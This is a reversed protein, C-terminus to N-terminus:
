AGEMTLTDEADAVTDGPELYYTLGVELLDTIEEDSQKKFTFSTSFQLLYVIKHEQYDEDDTVERFSVPQLETMDLGLDNGSLLQIIGMVLPNVGKRRDEEGRENKLTLLVNLTVTQKWKDAIRTFSGEFIAASVVPGAYAGQTGKQNVAARLTLRGTIAALASLEIDTCSAIPTKM